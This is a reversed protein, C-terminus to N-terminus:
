ISHCISLRQFKLLKPSGTRKFGSDRGLIPYLADPSPFLMIAYRMEGALPVASTIPFLLNFPSGGTLHAFTSVTEM